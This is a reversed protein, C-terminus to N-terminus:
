RGPGVDDVLGMKVAHAAAQARTRVQLKELVHAIHTKVTHESIGLRAAIQRNSLGRAVLGLVEAERETLPGGHAARAAGARPTALDDLLRATMAPAIIAQGAHVRRIAEVLEQAPADKLLYGRAGAELAAYLDEDKDSVTLIIVQIEPHGERIVRTAEPGGGPMRVDMLVVDPALREALAVAEDGGAAEGVVHLEPFDTLIRALGQRFLSHDDAILVRIPAGGM